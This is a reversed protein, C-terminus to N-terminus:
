PFKTLMQRVYALDEYPITLDDVVFAFIRRVESTGLGETLAQPETRKVIEKQRTKDSPPRSKGADVFEFFNIQQRKGSEFVEFDDKSLGRVIQRRKDTVVVDLQILEASIRIPQDENPAQSRSQSSATATLLSSSLAILTKNRM